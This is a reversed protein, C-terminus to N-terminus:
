VMSKDESSKYTLKMDKYDVGEERFKVVNFVIQELMNKTIHYKELDEIPLIYGDEGEDKDYYKFKDINSLYYNLAEVEDLDESLLYLYIENYFYYLGEGLLMLVIIIIKMIVHIDINLTVVSGIIGALMALFRKAYIKFSDKAIVSYAYDIGENAQKIMRLRYFNLNHLTYKEHVERGDGYSIIMENENVKIDTVYYKSEEENKSIDIM